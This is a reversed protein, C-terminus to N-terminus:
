VVPPILADLKANEVDLQVSVAASDEPNMGAQMTLAIANIKTDMAALKAFIEDKIAM